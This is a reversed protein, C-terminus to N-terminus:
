AVGRAGGRATAGVSVLPPPRQPAPPTLRRGSDLLRRGVAMRATPSVADQRTPSSAERRTPSVADRRTPSATERRTPSVVTRRSTERASGLGTSPAAGQARRTPVSSESGKRAEERVEIDAPARLFTRPAFGRPQVPLTVPTERTRTVPTRGGEGAPLEWPLDRRWAAPSPSQTTKAAPHSRHATRPDSVFGPIRPAFPKPLRLETPRRAIRTGEETEVVTLGELARLWIFSTSHRWLAVGSSTWSAGVGRWDVASRWRASVLWHSRRLMPRPWQLEENM